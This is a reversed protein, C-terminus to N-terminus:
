GQAKSLFGVLESKSVSKSKDIDAQAFAVTSWRKMATADSAAKPDSAQRLATMWTNFEVADLTGNGDKDYTPFDSDVVTAIQQPGTAPTGAAPQGATSPDAPATQDAPAPMSQDAPATQSDTPPPTPTTQDQALAPVSVLMATALLVHKLM